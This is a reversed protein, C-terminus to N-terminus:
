KNNRINNSEQNFTSTVQLVQVNNAYCTITSGNLTVLLRDGVACATSYTGLTTFTHWWFCQKLTTRGARLYNNADLYRLLLGHTQGSNAATVFTLGVQANASGTNVTAISRQGTTTPYACGTGYPSVSWSGLNQTWTYNGDNTTRSTLTNGAGVTFSDYALHNPTAVTGPTPNRAIVRSIYNGGADYWEVFPYVAVGSSATEYASTAIRVRQDYSLPAWDQSAM